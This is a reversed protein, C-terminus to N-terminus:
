GALAAPNKDMLQKYLLTTQEWSQIYEKRLQAEATMNPCKHPLIGLQQLKGVRYVIRNHFENLNRAMEKATMTMYNEVVYDDIVSYNYTYCAAKSMHFTHQEYLAPNSSKVIPRTTNTNTTMHM